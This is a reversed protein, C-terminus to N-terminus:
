RDICRLAANAYTEPEADNPKPADDRRPPPKRLPTAGTFEARSIHSASPARADQAPAQLTFLGLESPDIDRILDGLHTTLVARTFPGAVAASPGSHASDIAATLAATGKIARTNRSLRDIQDSLSAM